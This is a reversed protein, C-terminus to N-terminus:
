PLDAGRTSFITLVKTNDHPQFSMAM